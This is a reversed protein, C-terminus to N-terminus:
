GTARKEVVVEGESVWRMVWVPHAAPALRAVSGGHDEEHKIREVKALDVAGAM